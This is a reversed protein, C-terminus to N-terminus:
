EVKCLPISSGQRGGTNLFMCYLSCCAPEDLEAIDNTMLGQLFAASETGKVRILCDMSSKLNNRVRLYISYFSSVQVSVERVNKRCLELRINNSRRQDRM